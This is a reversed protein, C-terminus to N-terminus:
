KILRYMRQVKLLAELKATFQAQIDNLTKVVEAVALGLIYPAITEQAPAEESVEVAEEQNPAEEPAEVAEEQTSVQSPNINTILETINTILGTIETIVTSLSNINKGNKLDRNNWFIQWIKNGMAELTQVLKIYAKLEQFNSSDGEGEKQQIFGLYDDLSNCLEISKPAKQHETNHEANTQAKNRILSELEKEIKSRSGATIKSILNNIYRFDFIPDIKEALKQERRLRSRLAKLAELLQQQPLGQAIIEKTASESGRLPVLDWLIQKIERKMQEDIEIRDPLQEYPSTDPTDYTETLFMEYIPYKVEEEVPNGGELGNM